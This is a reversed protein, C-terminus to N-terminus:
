IIAVAPSIHHVLYNMSFGYWFAAPILLMGLSIFFWTRDPGSVCRGDFYLLNKSPYIEWLKKRHDPKGPGMLCSSFIGGQGGGGGGKSSVFSDDKEAITQHM